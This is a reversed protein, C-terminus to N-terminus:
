QMAAALTTRLRGLGYKKRSLVTDRPAGTAATMSEISGGNMWLRIVTRQPAPLAQVAVAVAAAREERELEAHAADPVLLAGASLLEDLTQPDCATTRSSVHKRVCEDLYLNRAAVFLYSRVALDDSPLFRGDRAAELVKLWLQQALDEAVEPRRSLGLLFRQLMKGYRAVLVTLCTDVESDADLGPGTNTATVPILSSLNGTADEM